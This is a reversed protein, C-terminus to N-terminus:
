LSFVLPPGFLYIFTQFSKLISYLLSGIMFHEWYWKMEAANSTVDGLLHSLIPLVTLWILFRAPEVALEHYQNTMRPFLGSALM